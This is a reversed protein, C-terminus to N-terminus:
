PIKIFQCKMIPTELQYQAKNNEYFDNLEEETIISDLSQQVMTQEYNLRVLSARYDRVLKDIDLDKPYNREAEHMLVADKIWRNVYAEIILTSDESTMGEPIMGAMESLYLTKNYVQALQRDDKKPSTDSTCNQLLFGLFLLSFILTHKLM